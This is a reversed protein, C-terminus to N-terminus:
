PPDLDDGRVSEAGRQDIVVVKGIRGITSGKVVREGLDTRNCRRAMKRHRLELCAGIVDIPVEVAHESRGVM